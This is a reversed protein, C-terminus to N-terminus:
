VGVYIEPQYLDSEPIEVVPNTDIMGLIEINEEPLIPDTNEKMWDIVELLYEQDTEVARQRCVEAETAILMAVRRWQVDPSPLFMDRQARSLNTADLIV